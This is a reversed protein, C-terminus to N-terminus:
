PLNNDDIFPDFDDSPLPSLRAQEKEAKKEAREFARYSALLSLFADRSLVVQQVEVKDPDQGEGYAPRVVRVAMGAPNFAVTAQALSGVRGWADVDISLEYVQVDNTDALLRGAQVTKMNKAM